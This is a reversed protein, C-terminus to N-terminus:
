TMLPPHLAASGNLKRKANWAAAFGPHVHYTYPSETTRYWGDVIPVSGPGHIATTVHGLTTQILDYPAHKKILEERTASGKMALDDIVSLMSKISYVRKRENIRSFVNAAKDAWVIENTM